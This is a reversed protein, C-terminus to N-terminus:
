DRRRRRVWGGLAGTALLLAWTGLEPVPPPAEYQIGDGYTDNNTCWTACFFSFDTYDSFMVETKPFEITGEWVFNDYQYWGLGEAQATQRVEQPATNNGGVVDQPKNPETYNTMNTLGSMRGAFVSGNSSVLSTTGSNPDFDVPKRTDYDYKADGFGRTSGNRWTGRIDGHEIDVDYLEPTDTNIAARGTGVDGGIWWADNSAQHIDDLPHGESNPAMIIGYQFPDAVTKNFQLALVPHRRYAYEVGSEGATNNRYSVASSDAEMGPYSTIMAWSLYQTPGVVDLSIYMAEIDYWEAGSNWAQTTDDDFAWFVNTLSGPGASFPAWKANGPDVGWESLDGDAVIPAARAPAVVLALIAVSAILLHTRM